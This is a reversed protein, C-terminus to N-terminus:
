FYITSTTIKIRILFLSIFIIVNHFTLAKEISLSNYSDTGISAFNHNISHTIVSKKGILYSNKDYISNHKESGFLVFYKAGNYIKILGDIKSFRICLPKEGM